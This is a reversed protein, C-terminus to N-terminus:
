PHECISGALPACPGGLWRLAPSCRHWYSNFSTLPMGNASLIEWPEVLVDGNFSQCYVNIALMAAKVENDRVMSIPDYLHNFLLARAGTEQVLQVLAARSDPAKRLLLRSGLAALQAQM